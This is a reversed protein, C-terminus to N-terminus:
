LLQVSRFFLQWNRHHHPRRLPDKVLFVLRSRQTGHIKTRGKEELRVHGFGRGHSYPRHPYGRYRPPIPRCLDRHPYAGGDCHSSADDPFNNEAPSYGQENDGDKKEIITNKNKMQM